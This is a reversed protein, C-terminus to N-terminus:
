ELKCSQSDPRASLSSAQASAKERADRRSNRKRLRDALKRCAVCRQAASATTIFVTCDTHRLLGGDVNVSLGSLDEVSPSGKCMCISTIAALIRPLNSLCATQPLKQLVDPPTPPRKGHAEVLWTGDSSNVMRRFNSGLLLKTNM